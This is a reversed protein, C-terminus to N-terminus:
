WKLSQRRLVRLAPKGTQAEALAAGGPRVQWCEERIRKILLYKLKEEVAWM